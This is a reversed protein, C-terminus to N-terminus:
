DGSYKDEPMADAVAIVLHETETVWFDLVQTVSRHEVAKKTQASAGSVLLFIIALVWNSKRM